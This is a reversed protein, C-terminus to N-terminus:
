LMWLQKKKKAQVNMITKKKKKFSHVNMITSDVYIDLVKTEEELVKKTYIVSITKIM